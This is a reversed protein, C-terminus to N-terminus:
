RGAAHHARARGSSTRHIRLSVQGDDVSLRVSDHDIAEHWVAGPAATVESSKQHNRGRACHLASVPWEGGGRAGRAGRGQGM